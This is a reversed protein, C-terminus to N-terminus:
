QGGGAVWGVAERQHIAEEIDCRRRTIRLCRKNPFTEVRRLILFAAGGEDVGGVAWDEELGEMSHTM